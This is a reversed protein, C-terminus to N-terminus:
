LEWSRIIEIESDTIFPKEVSKIMIDGCLVCESAVLDDLNIRLQNSESPAVNELDDAASMKKSTVQDKNIKDQLDAVRQRQANSFHKMTEATLCDAHFHHQCPFLYFQRTLLSFSCIHCKASASM